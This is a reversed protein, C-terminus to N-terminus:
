EEKAIRIFNYRHAPRPDRGRWQMPNMCFLAEERSLQYKTMLKEMRWENLREKIERPGLNDAAWEEKKAERLNVAAEESLGVEAYFAKIADKQEEPTMGSTDLRRAVEATANKDTGFSRTIEPM